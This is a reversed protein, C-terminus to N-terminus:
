INGKYDSDISKNVNSRKGISHEKKSFRKASPRFLHNEIAVTNKTPNPFIQHTPSVLLSQNIKVDWPISSGPRKVEMSTNVDPRGRKRRGKSM